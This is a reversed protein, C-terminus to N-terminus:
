RSFPNRAGIYDRFSHMGSFIHADKKWVLSVDTYFPSRLPIPVLAAHERILERFMFGAAINHSLMSIVTSLQGTQLLIQPTINATHFWSKIEATQFFGDEFLVLPFDSFDRPTVVSKQSLPHNQHTACVIELRSLTQSSFAADLPRNHPLIVMDLYNEQLKGTLTERGAETIELQLLPHAPLFDRYITPLLMSGIMPPVGLRLVKRARGFEHMISEAEGAREILDRSLTRLTEGEPTLTMGHHGRRFLPIGFERELDRIALSVSPQSIHLHMAAASVTKHECVALFYRLQSLQM